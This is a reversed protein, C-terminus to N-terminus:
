PKEDDEQIIDYTRGLVEEKAFSLSVIKVKPSGGDVSGDDDIRVGMASVDCSYSTVGDTSFIAFFRALGRKGNDQVEWDVM